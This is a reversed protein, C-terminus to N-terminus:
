RMEIGFHEKLLSLVQDMMASIEEETLTKEDSQIEFRVTLSVKDGLEESEYLDVPYFRRIEKALMPTLKDKITDFGIGKPVLLSLDRTLAPFKTYGRAIVTEYKLGSFDVECLYTRPLDFAKEANAHVRAMYGIDKGDVIVRAHEYPSFLASEDEAKKLEFVGLVASMKDAFAFFTIEEPKGHNQLSADEMNGSYIFAMKESEQRKADVVRGLEFLAVKKRGNKLNNAASELLHIVLTTRLTNLEASIPNSLDLGEDLVELNYKELIKKNDFFYHVSEFFGAGAARSRYKIRKKYLDFTANLRRKEIIELPKSVINDIGIFRVIEEIIDQKHVIDTRFDPIEVILYNDQKKCSIDLRSLIAMVQSLAIKQGIFNEIFDHSIQLIKQEKPAFYQEESRYIRAGCNEWITDCLFDLGLYLDTESGRSTNYFLDDAEVKQEMKLTSVLAPDIYSAELILHRGKPQSFTENQNLGIESLLMSGCYLANIGNQEKKLTLVVKGEDNYLQDFDYVRLIVGTTHMAYTLKQHLARQTYKGVCAIRFAELLVSECPEYEAFRYVVNADPEGSINLQLIRLIGRRDEKYSREYLGVDKDYAAALDRAVGRISLCDGRNATLEIDIIDDNLLPYTSLERGLELEGISEDLVMIGDNMEPLGIESSGCIMGNSEVGRLKAKKIVFGNGLDAGITAVAVTQGAAVNKAGCVIQTTETGIDVQCVNLKDADPHKECSLVRGVVVKEPIRLKEVSDVELGISNFTECLEETSKDEIDIWEQLWNRTVIM